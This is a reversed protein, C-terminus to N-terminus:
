NSGASTTKSSSRFLQYGPRVVKLTLPAEILRHHEDRKWRQEAADVFTIWSRGSMEPAGGTTTDWRVNTVAKFRASEGPDLREYTQRGRFVEPNEGPEPYKLDIWVELKIERIVDDSNNVLDNSVMIEQHSGVVGAGGGVDVRELRIRSAQARRAEGAVRDRDKHGQWLLFLAVSTTAITGITAVVANAITFWLPPDVLTVMRQSYRSDVSRIGRSVYYTM